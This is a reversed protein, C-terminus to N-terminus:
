GLGPSSLCELGLADLGANAVAFADGEDDGHFPAGMEAWRAMLYKKMQGKPQRPVTGFLLKRASSAVIPRVALDMGLFYDKVVGGLEALEHARNQHVGFAYEEVFVHSVGHTRAFIVLEEAINRRRRAKELPTALQELDAGTAIVRLSEWEGLKWGEPVVVAGSRRVSLDLGLVARIVRRV